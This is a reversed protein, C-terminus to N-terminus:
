SALRDAPVFVSPTFASPSVGLAAAINALDTFTFEGRAKMKRDLTSYPIGTKDSLWRKSRDARALEFTVASAVAQQVATTMHRGYM